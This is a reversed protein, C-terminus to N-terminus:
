LALQRHPALDCCDPRYSRLAFLQCMLWTTVMHLSSKQGLYVPDSFFSLSATVRASSVRVHVHHVLHVSSVGVALWTEHFAVTKLAYIPFPFERCLQLSFILLTSLTMSVTLAPFINWSGQNTCVVESHKSPQKFNYHTDQALSISIAM